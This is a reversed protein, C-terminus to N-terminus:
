KSVKEILGVVRHVECLHTNLMNADTCSLLRSHFFILLREGVNDRSFKFAYFREQQNAKYLFSKYGNRIVDSM